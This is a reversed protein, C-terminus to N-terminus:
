EKRVNPLSSTIHSQTPISSNIICKCINAFMNASVNFPNTPIGSDSPAPQSFNGSPTGEYLEALYSGFEPTIQLVSPGPDNYSTAAISYTKGLFSNIGSLPKMGNTNNFPDIVNYYLATLANSEWAARYARAYLDPNAQPDSRDFIPVVPNLNAFGGRDTLVINSIFISQSPNNEISFDLTLNTNVCVTEPGIFLLDEQWSVGNPFGNPITHNRFGISGKVTDVVLGEIAQFSDGLLVSDMNRFTGVTYLSNNNYNTNNVTLYQRWQIDFYNSVTTGNKTGSSYTDSIIQPINLDYSTPYEYTTNSPSWVVIEQTASFPCPRPVANSTDLYISLDDECVRSFTSTGRLPTAYGYASQDKIYKFSASTSEGPALTQYLGLPTVVAAISILAGLLMMLRSLYVIRLPVGNNYSSDDQLIWPWYSKQFLRGAVTRVSRLM